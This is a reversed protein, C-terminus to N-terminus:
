QCWKCNYVFDKVQESIKPWWYVSTLALTTSNKGQHGSHAEVILQHRDNKPPIVRNNRFRLIGNRVSLHSSYRQLEAEEQIFSNLHSNPLKLTNVIAEDEELKFEGLRSLFDPVLNNEGPEYKIDFDFQATRYLWRVIRSSSGQEKTMDLIAVLSKHDTVLLFKSGLLFQKFHEM